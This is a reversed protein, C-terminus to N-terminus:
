FSGFHGKAAGIWLQQEEKENKDTSFTFEINKKKLADILMKIIKLKNVQDINNDLKIDIIEGDERRSKLKVSSSLFITELPTNLVSYNNKAVVNINPADLLAQVINSDNLEVAYHLMTDNNSNIPTTVDAGDECLLKIINPNETQVAWFLPTAGDIDKSNIDTGPDALLTKIKEISGDAVALHLPSVKYDQQSQKNNKTVIKKVNFNIMSTIMKDSDSIKSLRETINKQLYKALVVQKDPPFANIYGDFFTNVQRAYDITKYKRYEPTFANNFFFTTIDRDVSSKTKMTENDIFYVQSKNTDFFVNGPHFDGHSVTQWTQPDNPDKYDMFIQQFSALAIGTAKMCAQKAILDQKNPSIISSIPGGKAAHILEMTQIQSSKPNDYIYFKEVWAIIPLNKKAILLKTDAYRSEIGVRGIHSEQMYNLSYSTYIQMKSIKLFFIPKEEVSINYIQDSNAGTYQLKVIVKKDGFYQERMLKEIADTTPYGSTDYENIVIKETPITAKNINKKQIHSLDSDTSLNNDDKKTNEVRPEHADILMGKSTIGLNTGAKSVMRLPFSLNQQQDQQRLTLSQTPKYKANSAAINQDTIKQASSQDKILIAHNNPDNYYYLNSQTDLQIPYNNIGDPSILAANNEDFGFAESNKSTFAQNYLNKATKQIGLDSIGWTAKQAASPSKVSSSIKNNKTTANNFNTEEPAHIDHTAFVLILAFFMYNKM